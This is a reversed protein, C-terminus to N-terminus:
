ILLVLVFLCVDPLSEKQATSMRMLIRQYFELKGDVQFNQTSACWCRTMTNRWCLLELENPWRGLYGAGRDAILKFRQCETCPMAVPLGSCCQWVPGWQCVALYPTAQCALLTNATVTVCLSMASCWFCNQLYSEM